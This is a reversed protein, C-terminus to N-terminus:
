SNLFVVNVIEEFLEAGANILNSEVRFDGEGCLGAVTGVQIFGNVEYQGDSTTKLYRYQAATSNEVKSFQLFNEEFGLVRNMVAAEVEDELLDSCWGVDGHSEYRIIESENDSNIWEYTSGSGCGNFELLRWSSPIVPDITFVEEPLSNGCDNVGDAMVNRDIEHSGDENLDSAYISENQPITQTSSVSSSNLSSGVSSSNRSYNISYGFILLILALLCLGYLVRIRNRKRKEEPTMFANMKVVMCKQCYPIDVDNVSLSNRFNTRGTHDTYAEIGNQFNQERQFFAEQSGCRPCQYWPM